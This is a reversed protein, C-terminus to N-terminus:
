GISVKYLWVAMVVIYGIPLIGQFFGETIAGIAVTHPLEFIFSAIVLTVILTTISAYIGKMKFVTLCLLFLIIPISAVVASLTVNDLPNINNLLVIFLKKRIKNKLIRMKLM